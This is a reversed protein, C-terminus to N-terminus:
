KTGLDFDYSTISLNSDLYMVQGVNSLTQFTDASACGFHCTVQSVDSGYRSICPTEYQFTSKLNVSM